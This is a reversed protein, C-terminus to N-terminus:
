VDDQLVGKKNTRHLSQVEEVTGLLRQQARQLPWFEVDPAHSAGVDFREHGFQARGGQRTLEVSQTRESQDFADGVGVAIVERSQSARRDCGSTGQGLEVDDRGQCM